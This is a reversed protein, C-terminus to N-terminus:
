SYCAYYRALTFLGGKTIDIDGAPAVLALGSEFCLSTKERVRETLFCM